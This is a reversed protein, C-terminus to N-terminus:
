DPINSFPRDMTKSRSGFLWWLMQLEEDQIATFSNISRLVSDISRILESSAAGAQKALSTLAAIVTEATINQQLNNISDPDLGVQNIRRIISGSLDPRKRRAESIRSIAAEAAMALDLPFDATRVGFCSATTTALAARASSDSNDDFLTALAAGSLVELERDNGEMDFLDDAAKFRQRLAALNAAQPRQKTRLAVALMTEISKADANEVLGVVGKWRAQLLERNASVNVLRYWRPFEDRM